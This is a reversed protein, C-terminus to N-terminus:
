GSVPRRRWWLDSQVFLGYSMVVLLVINAIDLRNWRGDPIIQWYTMVLACPVTFVLVGRAIIRRAEPNSSGHAANLMFALALSALGILQTWDEAHRNVDYDVGFLENSFRPLFFFAAAWAALIVSGFRFWSRTGRGM